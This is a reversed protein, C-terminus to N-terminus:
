NAADRVYRVLLKKLRIMMDGGWYCNHFYFGALIRRFMAFESYDVNKMWGNDRYKRLYKRRSARDNCLISLLGRHAFASADIDRDSFYNMIITVARDISESNQSKWKRTYAEPNIQSYHYLPASVIKISESKYVLRPLLSADEWLNVGPEFIPYLNDYLSRKILKNWLSCHVSGNLTRKLLVDRIDSIPEKVEAQYKIFNVYYGCIVIDYEGNNASNYLQEYMDKEVWDDPDCHIIYDSTAAEHGHQRAVAVGQNYAHLIIKVQPKRHPYENLVSELISISKDQSCDDVFIYEMEELTQAFLSRACRDIFPEVNYIPVIVSVKSM